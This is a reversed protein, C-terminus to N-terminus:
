LFVVTEAEAVLEELRDEGMEVLVSKSAVVAPLVVVEAGCLLGLFRSCSATLEVVEGGAWLRRDGPLPRPSPSRAEPAFLLLVAVSPFM